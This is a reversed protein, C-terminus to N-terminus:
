ANAISATQSNWVAIRGRLMMPDDMYTTLVAM